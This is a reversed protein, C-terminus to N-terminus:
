EALAATPLWGNTGDGLEVATWGPRTERRLCETGNPLPEALVPDFGEGNGKRLVTASKVVVARQDACRLMDCAVTAALVTGCALATLALPRARGASSMSLIAAAWLCAIAVIWRAHEGAFSWARSVREIPSPAPPAIARAVKARADALNKAIRGDSPALSQARRYDAIAEGLDGARLLANARNYRLAATDGKAMSQELLAASELFQARARSADSAGLAVGEAYASEAASVLAPDVGAHRSMAITAISAIALVACGVFAIWRARSSSVVPVAAMSV